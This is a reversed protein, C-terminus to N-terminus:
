AHQHGGASMQRSGDLADDGVAAIGRHDVHELVGGAPQEVNRRNRQDPEQIKLAPHPRLKRHLVRIRGFGHGGAHRRHQEDVAGRIFEDQRLIGPRVVVGASCLFLENGDGAGLM